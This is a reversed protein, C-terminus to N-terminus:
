KAESDALRDRCHKLARAIYKAIMSESVGLHIAIEAFTLGDVRSLLLATRANLPLEDLAAELLRLRERAVARMEPSPSADAEDAAVVALHTALRGDRRAADTALNGAIRYVYARPNQVDLNTSSLAALRLYTDQAVDSARDASGTRRTLYRLLDQYNERFTAILASLDSGGM